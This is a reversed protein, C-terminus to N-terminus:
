TPWPPALVKDAAEAADLNRVYGTTTDDTLDKVRDPLLQSHRRSERGCATIEASTRPYCNIPLWKRVVSCRDRKPARLALGLAASGAKAKVTRKRLAEHHVAQQGRRVVPALHENKM